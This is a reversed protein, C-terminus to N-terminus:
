QEPKSATVQLEDVAFEGTGGFMAVALMAFRARGPVPAVLHEEAWPRDGDWPGLTVTRILARTEGSFALEVRPLRSKDTQAAVGRTRRRVTLTLEKTTRGNVGIAQLVHASQGATGNTLM